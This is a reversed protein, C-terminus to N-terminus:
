PGLGLVLPLPCFTSRSLGTTICPQVPPPFVFVGGQSVTIPDSMPELGEHLHPGEMGWGKVVAVWGPRM